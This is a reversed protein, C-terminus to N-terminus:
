EPQIGASKIIRGWKETESAQFKAMEAPTTTYPEMGFKVIFANVSESAIAKLLM